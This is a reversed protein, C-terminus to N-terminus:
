HIISSYTYLPLGCLLLWFSLLIMVVSDLFLTLRTHVLQETDESRYWMNAKVSRILIIVSRSITFIFISLGVSKIKSEKFNVM